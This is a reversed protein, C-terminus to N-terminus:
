GRREERERRRRMREQHMKRREEATRQRPEQVRTRAPGRDAQEGGRLRRGRAALVIGVLIVFAGAPILIIPNGVTSITKDVLTAADASREAVLATRAAARGDVTVVVRGLREGESVDGSLEEPAEIRTEVAQGERASVTITEAALLPLREDRYDLKPDALEAGAQVPREPAYLSFGYDLLKLTEADRATESGAGLVVSILQTGARTASSVLVWGAKQTHGTKVGDISPDRALLTNRSTFRRPRDGSRLVATESDAIRAFLRNQLLRSALQALDAASSHNGPADLGIPNRFSTNTLGLEAAESNMRAVFAPVGGAVGRALTVAADNGSEVVLGYLLDKVTMKEGARLGVLSEAPLASYAPATLRQAPKLEQLALHATMLKTASAIPLRRDRAKAALVAQDRPDILIWARAKIKPQGGRAAPASAGPAEPPGGPKPQQAGAVAALLGAVALAAAVARAPSSGRDIPGTM